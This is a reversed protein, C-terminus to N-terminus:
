CPRFLSGISSIWHLESAWHALTRSSGDAQLDDIDFKNRLQLVVLEWDQQACLHLFKCGKRRDQSFLDQPLKEIIQLLRHEIGHFAYRELLNLGDDEARLALRPSRDLILDEVANWHLSSAMYLYSFEPEVAVDTDSIWSRVYTTKPNRKPTKEFWNHPVDPRSIIKLAIVESYGQHVVQDLYPTGNKDEGNIDLDKRRVLSLPSRL